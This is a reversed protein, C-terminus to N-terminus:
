FRVDAGVFGGGPGASVAPTFRPAAATTETLADEDRIAKTDVAELIVLLLGIGALSGGGIYGVNQLMVFTDFDGTGQFLTDAHTAAAFGGGVMLAGLSIATWGVYGKWTYPPDRLWLNAEVEVKQNVGLVVTQEVPEYADKDLSIQHRGEELVLEDRYPTRGVNQGDVYLTAGRVNTKVTVAGVRSLKDLKFTFKQAEGKRVVFKKNLPAFGKSELYLTYEGPDLTTKYPTQGLLKTRDGLFVNAGSPDSAITIELRAGLQCKAISNRIDVVDPPEHGNVKTYEAVYKEYWSICEESVGLKEYSKAINYLPRPAPFLEYAKKFAKIAGMYLEKGYLEVGENYLNAADERKRADADAPEAAFAPSSPAVVATGAVLGLALLGFLPKTM